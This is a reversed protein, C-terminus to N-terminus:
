ALPMNCELLSLTPSNAEATIVSVSPCVSDKSDPNQTTQMAEQQAALMGVSLIGLKVSCIWIFKLAGFKLGCLTRGTCM